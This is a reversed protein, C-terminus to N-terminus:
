IIFDDASAQAVDFNNLQVTFNQDFEFITKSGSQSAHAMLAEFTGLNFWTWDITEGAEFDAIVDRDGAQFDALVFTDIGSGGFLKDSGSGGSIVDNGSGATLYDNGLEGFLEDAGAGGYIRDNHDGGYISDDGGGGILRDGGSGGELVDDGSHGNITDNGFGGFMRDNGSNGNLTDNGNEGFLLDDGSNGSLTDLGSGGYMADAGSGGLMTDSGSDGMLTDNGSGGSLYDADGGGSLSDNGSNGELRDNGYSGYITDDGSNGHLSDDGRGGSIMDDGGIGYITDAGDGGYIVDDDSVNNGTGTSIPLQAVINPQGLNVSIVTDDYDNDGGGHLDEFGILLDGSVANARGVVHLYNDPNLAFDNAKHATSHFIDYGFQSKVEYQTGAAADSHWLTVPGGDLTGVDGSVTRLEFTGSQSDLALRNEYGKGYGNSVVFFGLQAGAAVNFSVQSENPLLEGGSGSKSANPFLIRVNGFTKDENVEYVGLANRYGAGEDVFTVTAEADETMVLKTMDVFAPKGNGYITDNGGQGYLRDDGGGGFIEDHGSLGQIVDDGGAGSIVESRGTGVMSDNASTGLLPSINMHTDVSM